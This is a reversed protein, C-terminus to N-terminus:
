ERLVRVELDRQALLGELRAVTERLSAAEAEFTRMVAAGAADAKKSKHGIMRAYEARTDALHSQVQLRARRAEEECQTEARLADMRAEKEAREAAELRAALARADAQQAFLFERLKGHERRELELEVQTAKLEAELGRKDLRM